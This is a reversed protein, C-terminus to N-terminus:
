ISLERVIRRMPIVLRVCFPLFATITFLGRGSNNIKTHNNRASLGFNKPWKLSAFVSDSADRVSENLVNQYYGSRGIHDSLSSAHVDSIFLIYPLDVLNTNLILSLWPKRVNTTVLWAIECFPVLVSMQCKKSAAMCIHLMSLMVDTEAM